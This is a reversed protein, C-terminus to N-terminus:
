PSRARGWKQGVGVSVGGQWEALVEVAGDGEVADLLVEAAEEVGEGRGVGDVYYVAVDLRGVEEKVRTRAVADEAVKAECLAEVDVIPLVLAVVRAWRCFPRSTGHSDISLDVADM